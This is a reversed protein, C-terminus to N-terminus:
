QMEVEDGTAKAQRLREFGEGEGEYLYYGQGSDYGMEKGEGAGSRDARLPRELGIEM